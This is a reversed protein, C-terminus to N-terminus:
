QDEDGSNIEARSAEGSASHYSRGDMIQNQDLLLLSNLHKSVNGRRSLTGM